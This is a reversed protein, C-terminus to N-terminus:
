GGGSTKGTCAKWAAVEQGNGRTKGDVAMSLFASFKTDRIREVDKFYNCAATLDEKGRRRM